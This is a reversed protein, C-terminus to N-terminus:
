VKRLADRPTGSGTQVGLLLFLTRGRNATCSCNTPGVALTSTLAGVPSHRSGSLLIINFNILYFNQLDSSQQVQWPFYPFGFETIHTMVWQSSPKLQPVQSGSTPPSCNSNRGSGCSYECLNQRLNRETASFLEKCQMEVSLM